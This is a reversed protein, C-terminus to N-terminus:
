QSLVTRVETGVRLDDFAWGCDTESTELRIRDFEIDAETFVAFPEGLRDADPDLYIVLRDKGPRFDIVVLWQCVEGTEITGREPMVVPERPAGPETRHVEVTWDSIDSCQGLFVMESKEKDTSQDFLSLGCWGRPAAQGRELSMTWAICVRTGDRGLAQGDRTLVGARDAPGGRRLDIDLFVTSSDATPDFVLRGGPLAEEGSAHVGLSAPELRYTGATVQFGGRWGYGLGPREASFPHLAILSTDRQWMADLASAQASWGDVGTLSEFRDRRVFREAELSASDVRTGGADVRAGQSPRVQMPVASRLSGPRRPAVSVAGAFVQAYTGLEASAEVGFSTGANVVEASPTTVVFDPSAAPVEATLRGSELFVRGPGLVRLRAPGEVVISTGRGMEFRALGSVLEYVRDDVPLDLTPRGTASSWRADVDDRLVAGFAAPGPSADGREVQPPLYAPQSPGQAIRGIWFALGAMAAVGLWIAAISLVTPGKRSGPHNLRMRHRRELEQLRRQSDQSSALQQDAERELEHLRRQEVAQSFLDDLLLRESMEDVSAPKATGHEWQLMAHLDAQEVYQAAAGPTECILRDLEDRGAADLTGAFVQELLDLLRDQEPGTVDPM